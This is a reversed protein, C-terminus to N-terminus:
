SKKCVLFKSRFTHIRGKVLLLATVGWYFDISNLLIALLFWIPPQFKIQREKLRVHSDCHNKLDDNAAHLVWVQGHCVVRPHQGQALDACWICLSPFSGSSATGYNDLKGPPNCHIGFEDLCQKPQPSWGWGFVMVRKPNTAPWGKELRVGVLGSGMVNVSIETLGQYGRRWQRGVAFHRVLISRFAFGLARM